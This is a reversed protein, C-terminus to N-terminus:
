RGSGARCPSRGPRRPTRSSGCRSRSSAARARRPRGRRTMCSSISSAASAFSFSAADRPAARPAAGRAPRAGRAPAVRQARLPLGLLVLMSCAAPGARASRSPAAALDLRGLAGVVQVPDGLELVALQRSSSCCSARRSPAARSPRPRLARQQALLDGLVLDGLDDRAPGADRHRPQDLALALLQQPEVLDQVLAHDALVLRHLPTASAHDQARARADLVRAPRDAREDEEARGADALGLQGLREGCDSKSVSSFMTRM